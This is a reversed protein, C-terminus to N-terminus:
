ESAESARLDFPHIISFGGRNGRGPQGSVRVHAGKPHRVRPSPRPLAPSGSPIVAEVYQRLRHQYKITPAKAGMVGTGKLRM